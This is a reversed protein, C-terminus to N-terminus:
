IDAASGPVAQVSGSGGSRELTRESVHELGLLRAQDPDLAALEAVKARHRRGLGTGVPDYAARPEGPLPHMADGSRYGTEVEMVPPRELDLAM